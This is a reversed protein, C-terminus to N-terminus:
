GQSSAGEGNLLHESEPNVDTTEEPRNEQENIALHPLQRTPHAQRLTPASAVLEQASVEPKPELDAIDEEDSDVVIPKDKRFGRTLRTSTEPTLGQEDDSLLSIVVPSSSGVLANTAARSGITDGRTLNREPSPKTPTGLRTRGNSFVQRSTSYACARRYYSSSKNSEYQM